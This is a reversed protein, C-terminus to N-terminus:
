LQKEPVLLRARAIFDELYNEDGSMKYFIVAGEYEMILRLAQTDADQQSLGSALLQRVVARWESFATNLLDNFLEDRGTELALNSFFCGRRHLTTLKTYRRFIKELRDPPSLTEDRAVSLVYSRLQLLAFDLVGRMLEEKTSFHHYLGAKQLGTAKALDQMSTNYYGQRHFVEWCSLLLRQKDIKQIPM